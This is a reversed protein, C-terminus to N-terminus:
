FFCFPNCQFFFFVQEFFFLSVNSSCLFKEHAGVLWIQSWQSMWIFLLSLLLNYVMVYLLFGYHYLYICSYIFPSLLLNEWIIFLWTIFISPIIFNTFDGYYLQWLLLKDLFCLDIIFRTPLLKILFMTNVYEWLVVRGLLLFVVQNSFPCLVQIPVEGSFVYLHGVSIHFISLM